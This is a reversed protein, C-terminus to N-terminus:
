GTFILVRFLVFRTVETEDVHVINDQVRRLSMWHEPRPDMLKATVPTQIPCHCIGKWNQCGTNEVQSHTWGQPKILRLDGLSCSATRQGLRM